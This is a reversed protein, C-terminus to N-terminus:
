YSCPDFHKTATRARSSRRPGVTATPAAATVPLPAAEDAITLPVWDADDDFEQEQNDKRDRVHDVHRRVVRNDTLTISFSM